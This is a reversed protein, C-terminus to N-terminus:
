EGRPHPPSSRWQVEGQPDATAIRGGFADAFAAADRRRLFAIRFAVGPCGSSSAFEEVSIQRRELWAQMEATLGAPEGAIYRIEVLHTM